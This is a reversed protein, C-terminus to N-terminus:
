KKCEELYQVTKQNDEGTIEHFIKLSQEFFPIAKKRKGTLMLARGYNHFLQSKIEKNEDLLVRNKQITKNLLEVAKPAVDTKIYCVSLMNPIEILSLGPESIKCELYKEYNPIALNYNEGWYAENGVLRYYLALNSTANPSNSLLNIFETTIQNLEVENGEFALAQSYRIMSGLVNEDYDDLFPSLGIVEFFLPKAELIRGLNFSLVLGKSYVLRAYDENHTGVVEKVRSILNDYAFLAQEFNGEKRLDLIRLEEENILDEANGDILSGFRNSDIRKYCESALLSDGRLKYVDGLNLYFHSQYSAAQPICVTKLLGTRYHREADILNGLRQNAVGRMLFSEIYDIDKLNIKEYVESVKAFAPICDAYNGFSFSIQGKSDNYLLQITDNESVMCEREIQLLLNQAQIYKEQKILNRIEFLKSYADPIEASASIGLLLFTIFSLFHRM